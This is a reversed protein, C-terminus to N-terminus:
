RSLEAEAAIYGFSAWQDGSVIKKFITLAKEKDGNYLFYNGIGYMLSVSGLTNTNSRAEILLDDTKVLGKYLKILKYYEQNEIIDLDNKIQTQVLWDSNKKEGYRRATMFVWHAAAVQMDPNKALNYSSMFAAAAKGWDGKLYYALGNHYHINTQLTSTPINRANPIGDLEVEDPKGMTLSAAKEFDKIADDFCRITLYRHGRHRYLRADNPHQVIGSSFIRIANKYNGLYATRRGLWIISDAENPKVLHVQEAEALKSEYLKRAEESIVPPVVKAADLCPQAVASVTLYAVLSVFMLIKRM